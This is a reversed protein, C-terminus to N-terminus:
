QKGTLCIESTEPGEIRSVDAFTGRTSDMPIYRLAYPLCYLNGFIDEYSIRGFLIIPDSGDWSIVTSPDLAPTERAYTDTISVATSHDNDSGPALPSGTKRTDPAEIRFESLHSGFLLHCHIIVNLAQSKGVNGYAITFVIPKGVTPSALKNTLLDTSEYRKITIYPRQELQFQDRLANLSQAAINASVKASRAQKQAEEALIHTDAVTHQIQGITRDATAGSSINAASQNLNATNLEKWQFYSFLTYIALVGFAAVEIFDKWWGRRNEDATPTKIREITSDSINLEHVVPPSPEQEIQSHSQESETSKTKDIKSTTDGLIKKVAAAFLPSDYDM